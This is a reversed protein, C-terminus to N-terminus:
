VAHFQCLLRVLPILIRMGTGSGSVAVFVPLSLLAFSTESCTVLSFKEVSPWRGSRLEVDVDHWSHSRTLDGVPEGDGVYVM